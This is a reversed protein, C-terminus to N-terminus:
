HQPRRERAEREAAHGVPDLVDQQARQDVLADGLRQAPAREGGVVGRAVGRFEARQAGAAHEDARDAGLGRQQEGAEHGQHDAGGRQQEEGGGGRYPPGCMGRELGSLIVSTVVGTEWVGIAADAMSSRGWSQSPKALSTREPSSMLAKPTWIMSM